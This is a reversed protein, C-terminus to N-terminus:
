RAAGCLGRHSRRQSRRARFHCRIRRSGSAVGDRIRGRLPRHPIRGHHDHVTVGLAEEAWENVEPTLPEGASSARRLVLNAPVIGATRLSRYVTPAAAFNTVSERELVKMTTEPSFGGTLLLSRVGTTFTALVGFYLGYAWGPDAGCWFVDGERIGLGFEAYAQFAALARAPVVVGKPAGTTGSTYIHIIPANGGLVAPRIGPEAADLVPHFSLANGEAAGTTIVQWPPDIPMAEGPALKGLQAADCIVLKTASGTLRIAIAPPAFATFLPVHVAGLRWIGMLTILYDASKGMLTAVRDGTRIGLTHMAAAFQESRVKLEGYSIDRVALDADIIRYALRDPARRDCLQFAVCLDPAAYTEILEEVRHELTM